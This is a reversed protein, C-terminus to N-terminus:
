TSECGLQDADNDDFGHPDPENVRFDQYYPIDGCDLDPSPPPVCITPYAASCRRASKLTECRGADNGGSGECRDGRGDGGIMGDLGDGGLIRDAGAGGRVLDPGGRACVTDNGGFADVVDRHNTGWIVDAGGTPRQGAGLNVTVRKGGCFLAADSEAPAVAMTGAVAAVCTLIKLARM